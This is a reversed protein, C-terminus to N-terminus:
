TIRRRAALAGDQVTILLNGFGDVTLKQFPAVLTTATPEEVIAPGRVVNGATLRRRDFVAWDFAGGSERHVARRTAQRAHRPDEGKVATTPRRPKDLSGVARIRYAVIEVPDSVSYGYAANHREDFQTRLGAPTLSMLPGVTLPVSLTHEQNEYRMDIWRLADRRERPVGERELADAAHAELDAFTATLRERDLQELPSVSTKSFDHVVDLTLMGWASFTAPSRPVIIQPIELRAALASAAIPGGGGYALLAFDRPDYGKGITIGELMAAMKAETLAVIGSAAEELTLGLPGAIREEIGRAAAEIDLEIEGGLFYAPDLLGSTLAADTFTPETGGKGYAIPGPV